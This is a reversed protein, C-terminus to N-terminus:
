KEQTEADPEGGHLMGEVEEFVREVLAAIEQRSLGIISFSPYPYYRCHNEAVEVATALIQAPLDSYEDRLYQTVHGAIEARFQARSPFRENQWDKTM